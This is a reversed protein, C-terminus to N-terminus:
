RRNLSMFHSHFGCHAYKFLKSPHHHTKEKQSSTGNRAYKKMNSHRDSSYAALLDGATVNYLYYLVVCTRNVHLHM